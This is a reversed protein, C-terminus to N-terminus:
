RREFTPQGRQRLRAGLDEVACVLPRGGEPRADRLVVVELRQAPICQLGRGPSARGGGTKRAALSLDAGRAARRLLEGRELTSRLGERLQPREQGVAARERRVRELEGSSQLGASFPASAGGGLVDADPFIVEGAVGERDLEADRTAPDYSAKRGGDGTEAEWDERFREQEESAAELVISRLALAEELDRDFAERYQPDVYDRYAESPPGAHTDSSIVLYRDTPTDTTM